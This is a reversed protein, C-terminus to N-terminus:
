GQRKRDFNHSVLLLKSRDSDFQLRFHVGKTAGSNQRSTAKTLTRSRGCEGATPAKTASAIRLCHLSCGARAKCAIRVLGM